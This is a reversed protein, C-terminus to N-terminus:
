VYIASKDLKRWNKGNYFCILDQSYFRVTGPPNIIFKQEGFTSNLLYETYQETNEVIKVAKELLKYVELNTFRLIHASNMVAERLDMDYVPYEKSIKGKFQYYSHKNESIALEKLDFIHKPKIQAYVDSRTVIKM